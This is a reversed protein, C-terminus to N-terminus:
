YQAVYEEYAALNSPNLDALDVGLLLVSSGPAYDLRAGEATQTLDAFPDYPPAGFDYEVFLQDQFPDFDAVVDHGEGVASGGDGQRDVFVIDAGQGTFILDDGGIAGILDDGDGADITDDGVSGIIEDNGAGAVISRISGNEIFIQDDFATTILAEVQELDTRDTNYPDYGGPYGLLPEVTVVGPTGSYSADYAEVGEANGSFDATDFGDGGLFVDDGASGIMTDNGAGMDFFEDAYTGVVLDDGPTGFTTGGVFSVQTAFVNDAETQEPGSYPDYGAEYVYGIVYYDGAPVFQESLQLYESIVVTEGQQVSGYDGSFSFDDGSIEADTSLFWDVKFDKAGFTGENSITFDILLWNDYRLEINPQGAADPHEYTDSVAIADLSLNWFPDGGGSGGTVTLPTLATNNAPDDLGAEQSTPTLDAIIQYDGSGLIAASTSGTISVTGEMAVTEYLDVLPIDDASLTGDTSAYLTVMFGQDRVNGAASVTLDYDLTDGADLDLVPQGGNVSFADLALDMQWEAITIEVWSAVNDTEDAEALTGSPDVIAGVYYTGGQLGWSALGSSITVTEGAALAEVPKTVAFFHQADPDAEPMVVFRMTTEGSAITGTSIIDLSVQMVQEPELTTDDVTLTGATLNVTRPLIVEAFSQTMDAFEFFEVNHVIDTGDPGEIRLSNGDLQTIVYDDRNGTFVATDIDRNGNITDDGAGGFLRDNGSGGKLTDSGEGGDLSDTGSGGLLSDDGLGGQLTDAGSGGKLTDNGELGSLLDDGKRGIIEDADVTGTLIDASNTGRITAM